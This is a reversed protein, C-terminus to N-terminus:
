GWRHLLGAVQKMGDEMVGIRKEIITFNMSTKCRIDNLKAEFQDLRTELIEGARNIAAVARQAFAGMTNVDWLLHPAAINPAISRIHKDFHETDTLVRKMAEWSSLVVCYIDSEPVRSSCFFPTGNPEILTSFYRDLHLVFSRDYNGVGTIVVKFAYVPDIQMYPNGISIHSPVLPGSIPPDQNPLTISLPSKSVMFEVEKTYALVVIAMKGNATPWASHINVGLKCEHGNGSGCGKGLQSKSGNGSMGSIRCWLKKDRGMKCPSWSVSWQPHLSSIVPIWLVLLDPRPKNQESAVQLALRIYCYTYLTQRGSSAPIVSIDFLESEDELVVTLDNRSQVRQKIAEHM